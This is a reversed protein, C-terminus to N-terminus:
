LQEYKHRICYDQIRNFDEESVTAKIANVYANVVSPENSYGYGEYDVLFSMDEYIYVVIM